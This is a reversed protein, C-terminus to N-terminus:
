STEIAQYNAARSLSVNTQMDFFLNKTTLKISLLLYFRPIKKLNLSTKDDVKWSSYSAVRYRKFYHTPHMSDRNYLSVIKHNNWTTSMPATTSTMVARSFVAIVLSTSSTLYEEKKKSSEFFYIEWSELTCFFFPTNTSTQQFAVTHIYIVFPNFNRVSWWARSTRWRAVCFSLYRCKPWVPSLGPAGISLYPEVKEHEMAAWVQPCPAALALHPSAESGRELSNWAGFDPAGHEWAGSDKTLFCVM